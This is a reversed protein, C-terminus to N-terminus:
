FKRTKAQYSTITQIHLCTVQHGLVSPTSIIKQDDSSPIKHELAPAFLQDSPRLSSNHLGYFKFVNITSMKTNSLPPFENYSNIYFPLM